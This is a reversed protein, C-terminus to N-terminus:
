RAVARVLGERQVLALLAPTMVSGEYGSGASEAYAGTGGIVSWTSRGWPRAESGPTVSRGGSGAVEERPIPSFAEPDPALAIRYQQAAHASSGGGVVLAIAVLGGAVQDRQM